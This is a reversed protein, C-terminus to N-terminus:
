SEYDIWHGEYEQLWLRTGPLPGGATANKLKLMDDKEKQTMGWICLRSVHMHEPVLLADADMNETDTEREM